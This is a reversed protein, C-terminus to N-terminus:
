PVRLVLSPTAQMGANMLRATEVGQTALERWHEGLWEEADYQNAFVPSIPRDMQAGVADDFEWAWQPRIV